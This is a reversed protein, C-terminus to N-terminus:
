LNQHYYNRFKWLSCRRGYTISSAPVKAGYRGYRVHSDDVSVGVSKAFERAKMDNTAFVCNTTQCYAIAELEGKALSSNGQLKIYKKLAQDNLPVTKIAEFVKLPFGYGYELPVSGGAERQSANRAPKV